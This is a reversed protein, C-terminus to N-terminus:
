FLFGLRLLDITPTASNGLGNAVALLTADIDLQSAIGTETAVGSRQFSPNIPLQVGADIGVTIGSDFTYLLGVRPNVFWTSAAMAESFSGLQGTNVLAKADLWQRGVRAGIFFAGRFPFVRLDGAIASFSAEVNMVNMRPLFSYEVGVGVLREFKALGEIAFPRPFGVGVLPGIRFHEAREDKKPPASSPREGASLRADTTGRAPSPPAADASRVFALVTAASAVACISRPVKM